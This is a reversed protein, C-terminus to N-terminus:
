GVNLAGGRNSGDWDLRFVAVARALKEAEARLSAAAAASQEALASNRQPSDHLDTVAADVQGIGAQQEAAVSTIGGILDTVKKVQAVIDDMSRGAEDVLSAGANVKDVSNAILAKIGRAAQASRQALTRVETAVVAFGRGQDGARGGDHEGDSAPSEDADVGCGLRTFSGM